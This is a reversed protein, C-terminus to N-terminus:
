WHVLLTGSYTRQPELECFLVFVLLFVLFRAHVLVVTDWGCSATVWTLYALTFVYRPILIDDTTVVFIINLKGITDGILESELVERSAGCSFSLSRQCRCWRQGYWMSDVNALPQDAVRGNNSSM